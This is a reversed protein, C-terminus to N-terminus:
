ITRTTVIQEVVERNIQHDVSPLEDELRRQEIQLEEQQQQLDEQAARADEELERAQEAYEKTNSVETAWDENEPDLLLAQAQAVQRPGMKEPAQLEVTVTQERKDRVITLSVKRTEKDEPGGALARRLKGVSGIEKGDVAVIVDGAKLGAKEAASGVTVERVLVGKGQKVGFYQALQTTLDDASVGLRAGRHMMMVDFNPMEIHPPPVPVSFSRMATEPEPPAVLKATITKTQGARSIQITVNRDPATERVLRRLQAASRVKEGAYELIVDDKMLGAKAAASDERVDKVLVGYDLKLEKANEDNIDAIMVGLRMGGDQSQYFFTGGEQPFPRVYPMGATWARPRVVAVGPRPDDDNLQILYDEDGGGANWYMVNGPTVAAPPPLPVTFPAPEQAFLASVGSVILILLGLALMVINRKM